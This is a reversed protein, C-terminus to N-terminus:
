KNVNRNNGGEWDGSWSYKVGGRGKAESLTSEMEWRGVWGWNLAGWQLADGKESADLTELILHM